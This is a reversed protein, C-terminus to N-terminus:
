IEFNVGVRSLIDFATVPLNRLWPSVSLRVSVRVYVRMRVAFMANTFLAYGFFTVCMVGVEGM